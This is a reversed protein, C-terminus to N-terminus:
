IGMGEGMQMVPLFIALIIFFVIVAMVITMVPTIKSVLGDTIDTLEADYDDGVSLLMDALKGSQEGTEIMYSAIAPFIETKKLYSAIKGSKIIKERAEKLKVVLVQNDVISCVIDLAESLNVGSELLMGLTKSFQVVAKTKSFYSTLPLKLMIEDFTYSGRKSSKWYLFLAVVGVMSIGLIMFHEVLFDSMDIMIQTPGPLETGLQVFMDKIKPILFTLVVVVIFFAFTLMGIPYALAKRIRKRTEEVRELYTTLRNLMINLKGSAEGARVLQVYVSPFIRPYKAMEGALSEGAKVGDKITILVHKFEGEFQESLLELAQLLPVGSKLLIGLQKTFVVKTRTDVKKEFLTSWFYRKNQRVTQTISIPMLGQGRLLEKAEQEFSADITGTVKNGRRTFSTYRYLPM